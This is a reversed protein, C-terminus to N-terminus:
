DSDQVLVIRSLVNLQDLHCLAFILLYIKHNFIYCSFCRLLIQICFYQECINHSLGSAHHYCTLNQVNLPKFQSWFCNHCSGVKVVQHKHSNSSDSLGMLLVSSVLNMFPFLIKASKFFGPNHFFALFPLNQISANGHHEQSVTLIMSLTDESHITRLCAFYHLCAINNPQASHKM